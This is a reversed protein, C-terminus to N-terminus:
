RVVLTVDPRSLSDGIRLVVPVRGSRIGDPLRADVQIVGAVSGPAASVNLVQANKGDITVSVPLVPKPLIDGALQGDDGAPNTQGAGTGYLEVISGKAAPNSASNLSRDANLIAGQGQGSADATFLGSTSEAVPITLAESLQGNREVVVQTNKRGAIAYPTVTNLQNASVFLLPAPAGDFLVRTQGLMTGVRGFRTPQSALLQDSGLNSGFITVVEGPAVSGALITAANVISHVGITPKSEATPSLLVSVTNSRSNAVALDPKGDGNFDIVSAWAPGNGVGLNIPAVFTGDGIGLLISITDSGANTAVLDLKGDFNFDAAALFSPNPGLLSFYNAVLFPRNSIVVSPSPAHLTGDGNGLLVAVTGTTTTANVVAVDTKRDGNFDGLAIGVPVQGAAIKVTPGFLSSGTGLLISVDGSSANVVALDLYGDGNLDGAAMSVPRVGVAFHKVPQFAGSGNGLFISVVNSTANAVAIDQMQDANFDGVVVSAPALVSLNAKTRFTGNGNGLLLSVSQAGFNAVVLDLNGDRDFDGAAVARAGIGVAQTLPPQFFGDGLGLLVTATASGANVSVLDPKGDRNFDGVALSLPSIGVVTETQPTFPDTQASVIAAILVALTRHILLRHRFTDFL